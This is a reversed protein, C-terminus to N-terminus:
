ADLTRSGVETGTRNSVAESNDRHGHHCLRNYRLGRIVVHARKSKRNRELVLPLHTKCYMLHGIPDQHWAIKPCKPWHCNYRRAIIYLVTISTLASYFGSWFLYWPGSANTLGIILLLLHMSSHYSGPALNTDVCPFGCTPVWASRPNSDRDSWRFYVLDIASKTKPRIATVNRTLTAISTYGFILARLSILCSIRSAM